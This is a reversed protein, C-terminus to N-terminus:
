RACDYYHVGTTTGGSSGSSPPAPSSPEEPPATVEISPEAASSTVQPPAAATGKSCSALALVVALTAALRWADMESGEPETSRDFSRVHAYSPADPGRMRPVVSCHGGAGTSRALPRPLRAVSGLLLHPMRPRIPLARATPNTTTAAAPTARPAMGSGFPT